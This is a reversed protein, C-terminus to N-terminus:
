LDIKSGPDDVLGEDASSRGPITKRRGFCLQASDHQGSRMCRSSQLFTEEECLWRGFGKVADAVRNTFLGETVEGQKISTSDIVRQFGAMAQDISGAALQAYADKLPDGTSSGGTAPTSVTGTRPGNATAAKKMEDDVMDIWRQAVGPDPGIQKYRAFDRRAAAWNKASTYAQGRLFYPEAVKDNLQICKTLDPIAEADRFARKYSRGRM